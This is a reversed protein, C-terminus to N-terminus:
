YFFLFFFCCCCFIVQVGPLEWLSLWSGFLMCPSTQPGQCVPLLPYVQRAETPSYIGLGTAGQHGLSPPFGPPLVRESTFPLRPNPSSNQLSPGPLSIFLNQIFIFYFLIFYFLIILKLFINYLSSWRSIWGLRRVGFEPV